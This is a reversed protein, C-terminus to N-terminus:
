VKEVQTYSLVVPTDRGFIAVLVKIQSREEDVDEVKGNFSAFPGDIVRVPEGLTFTPGSQALSVGEEIQKKVSVVESELIPSPIGDNGLFDTVKPTDKVLHWSDNNMAMQVMIYGPFIKKEATHKRGRTVEVTQQMPVLVDKIDDINKQKAQELISQAVRQEFGSYVHVVYWQEDM